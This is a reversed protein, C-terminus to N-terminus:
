AHYGEYLQQENRYFDLMDEPSPGDDDLNDRYGEDYVDWAWRELEDMGMLSREQNTAHLEVDRMIPCHGPHAKIRYTGHM